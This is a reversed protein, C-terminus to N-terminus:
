PLVWIFLYIFLVVLFFIVLFNKFKFLFGPSKNSPDNVVFVRLSKQFRQNDITKGTITTMKLSLLLSPLGCGSDSRANSHFAGSSLPKNWFLLFSVTSFKQPQLFFSLSSSLCAPLYSPRSHLSWNLIRFTSGRVRCILGVTCLIHTATCNGWLKSTGYIWLWIRGKRSM